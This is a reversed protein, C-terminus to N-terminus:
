LLRLDRQLELAIQRRRAPPVLRGLALRRGGAELAILDRQRRPPTIRTRRADLEVRTVREASCREVLLRGGALEIREHDTAHRAHYVFAAAVAAMELATFLLIQWVGAVIFGTAVGFSGLCLVGYAAVFQRPTLACQRRLLWERRSESSDRPM